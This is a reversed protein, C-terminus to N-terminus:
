KVVKAIIDDPTIVIYDENEYEIETGSYRAILFKDGVNIDVVLSHTITVLLPKEKNSSTKIVGSSNKNDQGVRQAIINEKFAQIM